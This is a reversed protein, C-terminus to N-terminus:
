LYYISDYRRRRSQPTQLHIYTEVLPGREVSQAWRVLLPSDGLMSISNNVALAGKTTVTTVSRICSGDLPMM